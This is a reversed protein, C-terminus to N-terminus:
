SVACITADIKIAIEVISKAMMVFGRPSGILRFKQCHCPDKRDTGRLMMKGPSIRSKAHIITIIFATFNLAPTSAKTSVFIDIAKISIKMILTLVKFRSIANIEIKTAPEIIPKIKKLAGGDKIYVPDTPFLVYPNMTATNEIKLPDFIEVEIIIREKGKISKITTTILLIM